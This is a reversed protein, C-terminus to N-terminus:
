LLVAHVLSSLNRPVIQERCKETSSPWIRPFARPFLIGITAGPTSTEVYGTPTVKRKGGVFGQKKGRKGGEQGRAENRRLQTLDGRIRLVCPYMRAARHPLALKYM